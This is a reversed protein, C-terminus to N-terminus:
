LTLQRQNIPKISIKSPVGCIITWGHWIAAGPHSFSMLEAASLAIKLFLACFMSHLKPQTARLTTRNLGFTALIWRKLKQSCFENLMARYRDAEVQENEFFFPWVIVLIRVLCPIMKPADGKWNIGALIWILKTQFSSKKKSFDAEETLRNCAWMAFRQELTYVVMNMRRFKDTLDSM